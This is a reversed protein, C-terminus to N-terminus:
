AELQRLTPTALLVGLVFALTVGAGLLVALTPGLAQALAGALLSGFPTTGFFTLTYAGMVRGRLDDPVISQVLTNSTANQMVFGFGVVTLCLLSLPLHRAYAFSLLALPFILSGAALLM